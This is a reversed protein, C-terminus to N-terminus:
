SQIYYSAKLGVIFYVGTWLLGATASFVAYKRYSMQHMGVLYPLIHRVGPIFYSILLAYGGYSSVLREAREVSRRLRKQNRLRELILPGCYRGLVYGISLGTIVGIYTLMFAPFAHLLGSQSVAGGTMVIVEDPIPLGVIGLWLAFFLAAYGFQEIWHLLQDVNM